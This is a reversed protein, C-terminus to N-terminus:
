LDIRYLKIAKRARDRQRMKRKYGRVKKQRNGRNRVKLAGLSIYDGGSSIEYDTM